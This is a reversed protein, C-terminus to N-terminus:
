RQSRAPRGVVLSPERPAGTVTAGVEDPPEVDSRTGGAGAEDNQPLGLADLGVAEDGCFLDSADDGSESAAPDADVDGRTGERFGGLQLHDFVLVGDDEDVSRRQDVLQSSDGAFIVPAIQPGTYGM